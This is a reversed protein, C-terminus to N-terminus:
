QPNTYSSLHANYGLLPSEAKDAMTALRDNPVGSIQLDVAIDMSILLQCLTNLIKRNSGGPMFGTISNQDLGIFHIILNDRYEVIQSGMHTDVGLRGQGLVYLLSLPLDVSVPRNRHREIRCPLRFVLEIVARLFHYDNRKYRVLPIVHMWVVFQEANLQKLEPWLPELLRPFERFNLKKDLRNEYRHMTTRVHYIETEFPMFFLRALREEERWNKIDTIMKEKSTREQFRPSSHFLGEPLMDYFGERNIQILWKDQSLSVEGQYSQVNKIEKAYVNRNAGIPVIAIRDAPIGAEDIAAAAVTAATYDTDLQNITTIDM